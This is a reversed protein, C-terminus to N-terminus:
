AAGAVLKELLQALTLREADGLPAIIRSEVVEADRIAQRFLEWGQETLQVRMRTRNTPDPRRLILGRAVLRDLRHTMTSPSVGGREALRSPTSGAGGELAVSQLVNWDGSSIGLLEFQRRYVVDLQRSLRNMATVIRQLMEQGGAATYVAV